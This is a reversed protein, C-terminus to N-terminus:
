RAWGARLPISGEPSRTATVREEAAVELLLVGAEAKATRTEATTAVTTNRHASSSAGVSGPHVPEWRVRGPRGSAHLGPASV